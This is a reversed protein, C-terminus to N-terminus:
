KIIGYKIEAEKGKNKVGVNDILMHCHHCLRAWDDLTKKYEGSINAWDYSKTIDGNHTEDNECILPKGLQAEIRRHLGGKSINNGKWNRNKSGTEKKRQQSMKRRTELSLKRGELSKSIRQRREKSLPRGKLSLSIKDRTIQNM